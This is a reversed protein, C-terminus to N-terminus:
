DYSPVMLWRPHRVTPTIGLQRLAQKLKTEAHASPYLDRIELASSLSANRTDPASVLFLTGDGQFSPNFIELGTLRPFEEHRKWWKMEQIKQEDMDPLMALLRCKLADVVDESEAFWPMSEHIDPHAVDPEAVGFWDTCNDNDGGLEYGYVLHAALSWGM